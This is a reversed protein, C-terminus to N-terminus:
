AWASPSCSCVSRMQVGTPLLGMALVLFCINRVVNYCLTGASTEGIVNNSWSFTRISLLSLWGRQHRIAGKDASHAAQRM